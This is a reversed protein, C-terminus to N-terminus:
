NGHSQDQLRRRAPAQARLAPGPLHRDRRAELGRVGVRQLRAERLRARHSWSCQPFSAAGKSCVCVAMTLFFPRSFYRFLGPFNRELRLRLNAVIIYRLNKFLEIIKKSDSFCEFLMIFLHVGGHIKLRLNVVARLTETLASSNKM